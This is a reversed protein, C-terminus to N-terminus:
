PGPLLAAVLKYCYGEHPPSLVILLRRVRYGLYSHLDHASYRPWGVRELETALRRDGLPYQHRSGRWTFRCEFTDTQWRLQPNVVPEVLTVSPRDGSLTWYPVCRGAFGLIPLRQPQRLRGLYREAKRPTLHGIRMPPADLMVTEPRSVDARQDPEPAIRAAVVDFAEIPYAGRLSPHDTGGYSARVFAGSELDVGVCGRSDAALVLLDLVAGGAM